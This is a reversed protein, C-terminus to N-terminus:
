AASSCPCLPGRLAIHDPINAEMLGMIVDTSLRQTTIVMHMCAARDDTGGLM